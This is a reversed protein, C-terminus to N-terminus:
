VQPPEPEVPPEVPAAWQVALVEEVTTAADVAARRERATAHATQVQQGLLLGVTTMQTADLTVISNDKLTWTIAVPQGAATLAQALLVADTINARDEDGCQFVGYPTVLDENVANIRWQKILAWRKAAEAALTGTADPVM